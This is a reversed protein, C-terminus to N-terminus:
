YVLECRASPTRISMSQVSTRPTRSRQHHPHSPIRPTHPIGRLSLDRIEPQSELFTALDPDLGAPKNKAEEPRYRCLLVCRTTSSLLRFPANRPFMWALLRHRNEHISVEL